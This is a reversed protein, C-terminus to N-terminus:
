GYRLKFGLVTLALACTLGNAAILPGDGVMLGYVLWLFTGLSLVSIWGLSVDSTSRTTWAKRVQPVLAVTTCFAAAYGIISALM